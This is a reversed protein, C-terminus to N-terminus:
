DAFLKLQQPARLKALSARQQPTLLDPRLDALWYGNQFSFGSAIELDVMERYHDPNHQAGNRLDNKSGMVCLACSLRENGFLYAPHYEWEAIYAPDTHPGLYQGRRQYWARQESVDEMTLGLVDWVDAETFNLLPNWTFCLRKQTKGEVKVRHKYATAKARQPSEEARIGVACIGIKGAPIDARLHKDIQDTKLESTCFRCAASAWPIQTPDKRYNQWYRDLLDGQPRKVVILPLGLRRARQEVYNPTCYWENRDLDAHVLQIPNRMSREIWLEKLLIAMADSDKGGSVSVYLHAGSDLAGSIEDPINLKPHM